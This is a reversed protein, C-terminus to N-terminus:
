TLSAVTETPTNTTTPKTAGATIMTRTERTKNGPETTSLVAERITRQFYLSQSHCAPHIPRANAAAPTNIAVSPNFLKYPLGRGSM